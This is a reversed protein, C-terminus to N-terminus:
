QGLHKQLRARARDYLARATAANKYGLEAAIQEYSYSCRNRLVLVERHTPSLALLAAEIRAELENVRAMESPTADKAEIELAMTQWRTLDGAMVRRRTADRRARDRVNNLAICALWSRFAGLSRPQFQHLSRIAELLTEQVLDDLDACDRRSRGVRLAITQRVWPLFRAVLQELAAADGAQAQRVQAITEGLSPESM